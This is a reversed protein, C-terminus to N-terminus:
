GFSRVAEERDDFVEFIEKFGAMELTHDVRVHPSLLKCHEEFVIKHEVHTRVQRFSSWGVEPDPPHEGRMIFAISHLAVLGSSAMFVLDSMDILLDRTGQDYLKKAEIIVDMYCRADLEGDIKMITVPAETQVHEVSIDM